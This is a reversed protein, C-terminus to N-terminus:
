QWGTSKIFDSLNETAGVNTNVAAIKERLTQYVVPVTSSAGRRLPITGELNKPMVKSKKSSKSAFRKVASKAKTTSSKRTAKSSKGKKTAAKKTAAM